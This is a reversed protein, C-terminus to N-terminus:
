VKFRWYNKHEERWVIGKRGVLSSIPNLLYRLGAQDTLPLNALFRQNLQNRCVLVANKPGERDYTVSYTELAAEGNFQEILEPIPGRRADAEEQVSYDRLITELSPARRSLILAHNKTVYEGNGYLLGTDQGKRLTRVMGCAAATMYNNLAAGAFTLGGITSLADSAPRKLIRRAMKPVCPFCSYLELLDLDKAELHNFALVKELVVEMSASHHYNDRKLFDVPENAAAGAGIFVWKEKPINLEKAKAVSCIILAASSNVSNNAVMWKPYPFAIMRNHEGVTLLEQETKVKSIWAYPNQAAIKSFNHWILASEKQAEEFNQGNAGYVSNEYLPYVDTPVHLGYNRAYPNVKDFPDESFGEERPRTWHSPIQHHKLAKMASRRAEGGCVGGIQIEERAIAQALQNIFRVPSEGGLDGHVIHPQSPAPLLAALRGTIDPYPWSVMNVLNIEDLQNLLELSGADKAALVLAEKVLVLSEKEEGRRPNRDLVGAVGVIVPLNAEMSM